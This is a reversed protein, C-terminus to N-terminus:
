NRSIRKKGKKGKVSLMSDRVKRSGQSADEIKEEEKAEENDIDEVPIFSV